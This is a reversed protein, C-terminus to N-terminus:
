AAAEIGTAVAWAVAVMVPQTADDPGGSVDAEEAGEEELVGSAVLELDEAIGAVGDAMEDSSACRAALNRASSPASTTSRFARCDADHDPM